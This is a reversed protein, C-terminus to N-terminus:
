PDAANRSFAGGFEDHSGVSECREGAHAMVRSVLDRVLDVGKHKGVYRPM